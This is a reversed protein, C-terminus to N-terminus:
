CWWWGPSFVGVRQGTVSVQAGTGGVVGACFRRWLLVRRGERKDEGADALAGFVLATGGGSGGGVGDGGGGGCGVHLVEDAVATTRTAHSDALVRFAQGAIAGLTLAAQERVRLGASPLLLTLVSEMAGRPAAALDIAQAVRSLCSGTVAIIADPVGRRNNSNNNNHSSNSNNNDNVHEATTGIGSRGSNGSHLHHKAAHSLLRLLTLACTSMVERTSLPPKEPLGDGGIGSGIGELYGSSLGPTAAASSSPAAVSTQPPM